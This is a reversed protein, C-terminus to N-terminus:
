RSIKDPQCDCEVKGHNDLGAVCHGPKGTNGVECTGGCTGSQPASCKGKAILGAKRLLGPFGELEGCRGDYVRIAVATGECLVLFIAALTVFLAKRM